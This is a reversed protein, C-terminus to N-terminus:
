LGGLLNGLGSGSSATRFHILTTFGHTKTYRHWVQYTLFKGNLRANPADTIEFPSGIAIAPAGAVWLRGTVDLSRTQSAIAGAVQTATKQSRVAGDAYLPATNGSGATATVSAPDNVLWSWAENGQHGAAGEGIVTVAAAAKTESVELALIDQGYRFTQVTEGANPPVFCLKGAATFYALYGSKQALAAIHQYAPIRDSIAYAPLDVGDEVTDIAVTAQSALEKVIKGATQQAFSQNLRLRTLDAGGNSVRLSQTGRLNRRIQQVTGKLIAIAEGDAYGLSIQGEDALAVAPAQSDSSLTIVAEDVFPAMGLQVSIAILSRQWPDESGGGLGVTSAAVGALGGLGGGSNGSGFEVAFTPSRVAAPAANSTFPLSIM